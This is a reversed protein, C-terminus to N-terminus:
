KYVALESVLLEPIDARFYHPALTAVIITHTSATCYRVPM